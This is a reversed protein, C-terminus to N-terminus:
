ISKKWKERLRLGTAIGSTYSQQILITKSSPPNPFFFSLLSVVFYFFFCKKHTRTKTVRWKVIVQEIHIWPRASNRRTCSVLQGIFLHCVEYVYKNWGLLPCLMFAVSVSWIVVLTTAVTKLRFRCKNASLGGAIVAHRELSIATLSWISSLGGLVSMSGYLRCGIVCFSVWNLLFGNFNLFFFMQERIVNKWMNISMQSKQFHGHVFYSFYQEIINISPIVTAGGMKGAVGMLPYQAFSNIVAVPAKALMIIDSLALSLILLNSSTRLLPSRFIIFLIDIYINRDKNKHLHFTDHWILWEKRPFM